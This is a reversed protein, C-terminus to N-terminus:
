NVDDNLFDLFRLGGAGNQECLFPCKSFHSSIRGWGAKKPNLWKEM